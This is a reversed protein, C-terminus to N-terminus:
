QWDSPEFIKLGEDSQYFGAMGEGNRGQWPDDVAEVLEPNALLDAYGAVLGDPTYYEVGHDPDFLHWQDGVLVEVVVHGNVGDSHRLQLVRAEYGVAVALDALLVSVNDCWGNRAIWVEKGSLAGPHEPLHTVRQSIAERLAIMKDMDSEYSRTITRFLMKSWYPEPIFAPVDKTVFVYAPLLLAIVSIVAINIYRKM